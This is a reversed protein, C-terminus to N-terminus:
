DCFAGVVRQREEKGEHRAVDAIDAEFPIM